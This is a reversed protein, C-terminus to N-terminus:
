RIYVEQLICLPAPLLPAKGVPIPALIWASLIYIVSESNKMIDMFATIFIM